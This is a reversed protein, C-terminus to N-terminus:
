DTQKHKDNDMIGMTNDITKRKKISKCIHRPKAQSKNRNKEIQRKCRM